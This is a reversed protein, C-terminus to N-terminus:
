PRERRPGHFHIARAVLEKGTGSEGLILVPHASQAVKAIMRYLKMMAPTQGILGFAGRVSEKAASQTGKEFTHEQMAREITHRLPGAELPKPLYDFAGLKIAAVAISYTPHDSVVIVQIQPHWYRLHGLLQLGRANPLEQSLILIEGPGSELALLLEEASAAGVIKLSENAFVGRCLEATSPDPDAVLLTPPIPLGIADPDDNC